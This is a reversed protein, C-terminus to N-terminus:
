IGCGCGRSGSFGLGTSFFTAHTLGVKLMQLEKLGKQMLEQVERPDSVNKNDHFADVTRRRAYERFNYAQFQRGQRLLSRYTIHFPHAAQLPSWWWPLASSSVLSRAQQPLDGKLASVVPGNTAM